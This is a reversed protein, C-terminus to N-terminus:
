PQIGVIAVNIGNWSRLKFEALPPDYQVAGKMASVAGHGSGKDLHAHIAAIDHGFLAHGQELETSVQADLDRGEARIGAQPGGGVAAETLDLHEPLGTGEAGTGRHHHLAHVNRGM